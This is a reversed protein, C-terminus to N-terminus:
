GFLEKILRTLRRRIEQLAIPVRHHADHQRHDWHYQLSPGPVWHAREDPPPSPSLRFFLSFMRMMSEEIRHHSDSFMRNLRLFVENLLSLYAALLSHNDGWKANLPFRCCFHEARRWDLDDIRHTSQYSTLLKKFSVIATYKVRTLNLILQKLNFHFKVEKKETTTEKVIM